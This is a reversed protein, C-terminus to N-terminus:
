LKLKIAKPPKFDGFGLYGSKWGKTTLMEKFKKFGDSLDKEGKLTKYLDEDVKFRDYYHGLQYATTDKFRLMGKWFVSPKMKGKQCLKSWVLVLYHNAIFHPEIELLKELLTEVKALDFNGSPLKDYMQPKSFYKAMNRNIWDKDAVYVNPKPKINKIDTAEAAWLIIDWPKEVSEWAHNFYIEKVADDSYYEYEYFEKWTMVKGNKAIKKYPGQPNVHNYYNIERKGDNCDIYYDRWVNPMLEEELITEDPNPFKLKVKILSTFPPVPIREYMEWKRTPISTVERGWFASRQVIQQRAPAHCSQEGIIEKLSKGGHSQEFEKKRENFRDFASKILDCEAKYININVEEDDGGNAEWLEVTKMESISKWQFDRPAGPYMQVYFTENGKEYEVETSWFREPM